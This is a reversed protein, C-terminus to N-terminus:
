CTLYRYTLHRTTRCTQDARVWVFVFVRAFASAPGSFYIIGTDFKETGSLGRVHHKLM